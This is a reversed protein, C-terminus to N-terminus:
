ENVRITEYSGEDRTEPVFLNFAVLPGQERDKDPEMHRVVASMDKALAGLDRAGLGVLKDETIKDLSNTLVRIAKKSVRTKRKTIFDTIHAKPKDYSATSTAGNSYASASSKSVDFMSALALAEKRGEVAATGAILAQLTSPVNNDGVKRGRSEMNVVEGDIVPNENDTTNETTPNLSPLIPISQEVRSTVNQYEKTFEETSVVGMPM